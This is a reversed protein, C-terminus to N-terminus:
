AHRVPPPEGSVRIRKGKAKGKPRVMIEVECGLMALFRMLREVSYDKFRGSLLRSVDSQAINMHKAAETQTWGEAEIVDQIRSVLSAKLLHAEPDPFGLDAFINGTGATVKHDSTKRM